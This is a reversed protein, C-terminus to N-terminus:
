TPASSGCSRRRGHRGISYLGRRGCHQQGGGCEQEGSRLATGGRHSRYVAIVSAMAIVAEPM